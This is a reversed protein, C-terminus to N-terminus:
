LWPCISSFKSYIGCVVVKSAMIEDILLQISCHLSAMDAIPCPVTLESISTPGFVRRNRAFSSSSHLRSGSSSCRVFSPMSLVEGNQFGVCVNMRKSESFRFSPQKRQVCFHRTESAFFDKDAMRRRVLDNDFQKDVFDELESRPNIASVNEACGDFFRSDGVSLVHASVDFLIDETAIKRDKKERLRVIFAGDTQVLHPGNPTGSMRGDVDERQRAHPYWFGNSPKHFGSLGSTKIRFRSKVSQMSKQRLLIPQMIIEHCPSTVFALKEM